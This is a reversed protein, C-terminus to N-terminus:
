LFELDLQIPSEAVQDIQLHGQESCPPQALHARFMGELGFCEIITHNYSVSFANTQEHSTTLSQNQM